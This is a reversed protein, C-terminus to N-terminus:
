WGKYGNDWAYERLERFWALKPTPLNRMGKVQMVSQRLTLGENLYPQCDEWLQIKEAEREATTQEIVKIKSTM